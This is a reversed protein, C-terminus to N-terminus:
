RILDQRGASQRPSSDTEDILRLAATVAEEASPALTVPLPEGGPANM